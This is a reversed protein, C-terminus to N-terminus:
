TAESPDVEVLEGADNLAVYCTTGDHRTTLIRPAGTERLTDILTPDTYDSPDAM